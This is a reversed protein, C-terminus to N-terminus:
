ECKRPPVGGKQSLGSEFVGGDMDLECRLRNAMAEHGYLNPHAAGLSIPAIINRLAVMWGGEVWGEKFASDAFNVFWSKKNCWGRDHHPDLNDLKLYKWELFEIGSDKTYQNAEKVFQSIRSEIGMNVRRFAAQAEDASIDIYKGVWSKVGLYKGPVLGDRCFKDSKDVDSNEIEQGQMKRGTLDPYAMFYVRVPRGSLTALGPTRSQSVLRLIEDRFVRLNVVFKNFREMNDFSNLVGGYGSKIAESFGVDNGGITIVIYDPLVCETGACISQRLQDIQSPLNGRYYEIPINYKRELSMLVADNKAGEYKQLIGESLQAGSCAFNMYNITNNQKGKTNRNNIASIQAAISTFNILSRNCKQDMWRALKTNSESM